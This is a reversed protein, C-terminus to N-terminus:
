QFQKFEIGSILWVGATRRFQDSYRGVVRMVEGDDCKKSWVLITWDGTACDGDVVINPSGLMHIMWDSGGAIAKRLFDALAQGGNFTALGFDGVFDDTFLLPLLHQAAGPDSAYLDATACYRAKLNAILLADETM